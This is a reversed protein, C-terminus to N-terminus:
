SVSSKKNEGEKPTTFPTSNNSNPVPSEPAIHVRRAEAQAKAAELVPNNPGFRGTNDRKLPARSADDQSAAAAQVRAERERALRQITAMTDEGVRLPGPTNSAGKVASGSSSTQLKQASPYPTNPPPPREGTRLPPPKPQGTVPTSVAEMPPPPPPPPPRKAPAGDDDVAKRKNGVTEAGVDIGFSAVSTEGLGTFVQMNWEGNFGAVSGKFKELVKLADMGPAMGKFRGAVISRTILNKISQIKDEQAKILRINVDVTVLCIELQEAVEKLRQRDNGLGNDFVFGAFADLTDLEMDLSSADTGTAAFSGLNKFIEQLVQSDKDIKKDAIAKILTKKASANAQRITNKIEPSFFEAFAQSAGPNEGLRGFRAAQALIELTELHAVISREDIHNAAFLTLKNVFKKLLAPDDGFHGDYIAQALMKKAKASEFKLKGSCIADVLIERPRAFSFMNANECVYALFAEDGGWCGDAIKKAIFNQSAESVNHLFRLVLARSPQDQVIHDWEFGMLAVIEHQQEPTLCPTVSGMAINVHTNPAALNKVYAKLAALQVVPDFFLASAHPYKKAYFEAMSEHEGKRLNPTAEFVHEPIKNVDNQKEISAACKARGEPTRFNEVNWKADLSGVGGKGVPSFIVGIM